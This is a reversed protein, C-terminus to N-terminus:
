AVLDSYVGGELQEADERGDDLEIWKERRIILM